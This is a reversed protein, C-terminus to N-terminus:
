MYRVAIGLIDIKLNYVTFNKYNYKGPLCAFRNFEHMYFLGLMIEEEPTYYKIKIPKNIAMTKNCVHIPLHTRPYSGMHQAQPGRSGIAGRYSVVDDLDVTVIDVDVESIAFQNGQSVFEGNISVFSTGDFYVRGGDCGKCNSYVYVGGCKATTSQILNVKTYLQRLIYHSASGNFCVEVGDLSMSTYTSQGM